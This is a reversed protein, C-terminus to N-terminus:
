TRESGDYRPADEHPVIKAWLTAGYVDRMTSLPAAMLKGGKGSQSLFVDAGLYIAFHNISLAGGVQELLVIADGPALNTPRMWEKSAAELEWDRTLPVMKDFTYEVNHLYHAFKGCDFDKANEGIDRLYAALRELLEDPMELKVPEGVDRMYVELAGINPLSTFSNADLRADTKETNRRLHISALVMPIGPPDAMVIQPVAREIILETRAKREGGQAGEPTM